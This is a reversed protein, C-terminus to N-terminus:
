QHHVLKVMNWIPLYVAFALMLVVLSMGIILIPEIVDNLKKLDYDVERRYYIAIQDLMNALEGTEESVAMTQMELPTFLHTAAIAQTLSKGHQISDQISLVEKTAYTNGLTKAVLGIGDIIPIGSSVIVSFSQAFRLLVIRRLIKGVIPLCLVYKDWKYEGEATHLYYYIWGIGAATLLILYFWYDIFFSSTAILVKTMTPLEVNSQKFINAFTPIVFINVLIIAAIVSLMIFTPYRLAAKARKIATAELELYQNLRLFAEDLHGSDQGVRIMSIMIPTFIASYDQMASALDKGSELGEVIGNLASAMRLTRANESLQRLASTIPVSTKTLTHMQRAFMSLEELNIRRPQFWKKLTDLVGTQEGTVIIRVPTIGQNLLEISLSNASQALRRGKVLRGDNDRGHYEFTPM